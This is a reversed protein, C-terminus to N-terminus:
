SKIQALLRKRIPKEFYSYSVISIATLVVLYAYFATGTLTEQELTKAVIMYVPWQFIYVAYSANGLLVLFQNGLLSTVWSKDLALGTIILFYLPSLLGNHVHARVPNEVYFVLSFLLVGMIWMIRPIVPRPQNDHKNLIWNGCIMGILFTGLHLPPFYVIFQGIVPDNPVWLNFNMWIHLVACFLWIAFGMISFSSKKMRKFLAVFLPFMAYLFFEVSISWGPFNIELCNGPSWAHLGMLQLIISLGRPYAEHWVMGLVLTLGFALLYSPYIRALRKKYFLTAKTNAGLYNIALVVGSLFFFFSVAVSGESALPELVAGDFPSVNLGFHFIVVLVAALYRLFTLQKIYPM